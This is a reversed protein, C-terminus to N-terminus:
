LTHFASVIIGYIVAALVGMLRAPGPPAAARVLILAALGALALLCCATVYGANYPNDPTEALKALSM